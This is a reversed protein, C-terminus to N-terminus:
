RQNKKWTHDIVPLLIFKPVKGTELLPQKSPREAKGTAVKGKSTFETILNQSYLGPPPSQPM